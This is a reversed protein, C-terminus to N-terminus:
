NTFTGTREKLRLNIEEAEAFEEPTFQQWNM